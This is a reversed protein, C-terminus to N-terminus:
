LIQHREITTLDGPPGRLVEGVAGIDVEPDPQRCHNGIEDRLTALDHQVAFLSNEPDTRRGACVLDVPIQYIGAFLRDSEHGAATIDVVRVREEHNAPAM